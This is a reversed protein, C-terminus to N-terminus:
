LRVHQRHVTGAKWMVSEWYYHFLSLFAMMLFMGQPNGGLAATAAAAAAIGAVPTAIYEPLRMAATLRVLLNHRQVRNRNRNHTVYFSFASVDHVFRPILVVFFPMELFYFLFCALVMGTNAHVYLRGTGPACEQALRNGLVLFPLGFLVACAIVLSHFLPNGTLMAMYLLTVLLFLSWRWADWTASKHRAVMAAIGAQQSMLHYVTYVAIFIAFAAEGLLSIFAAAGAAIAPVSLALQRRYTAIYERDLFTFMSAFIHPLMFFLSFWQMSHPDAPLARVVNGQLLLADAAVFLLCLPIIGYLGLLWRADLRQENTDVPAVVTNM